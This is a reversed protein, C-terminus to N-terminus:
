VPMWSLGSDFNIERAVIRYSITQQSQGEFTGLSSVQNRTHYPLTTFSWSASDVALSHLRWHGSYIWAREPVPWTRPSQIQEWSFPPQSPAPSIAWHKLAGAARASSWLKTRLVCVAACFLRCSWNWPIQHRRTVEVSVVPLCAFAWVCLIFILRAFHPAKM